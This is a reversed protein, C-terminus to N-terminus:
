ILKVLDKLNFIILGAIFFFICGLFFINYENIRYQVYNSKMKKRNVSVDISKFGLYIFPLILLGFFLLKVM